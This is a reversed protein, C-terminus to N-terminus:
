MPLSRGSGMPGRKHVDVTEEELTVPWALVKRAESSRSITERLTERPLTPSDYDLHSSGCVDGEGEQMTDKSLLWVAAAVCVLIVVLQWWAGLSGWTSAYPVLRGDAQANM